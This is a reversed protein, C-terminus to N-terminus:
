NVILLKTKISKEEKSIVISIWGSLILDIPGISEPHIEIPMLLSSFDILVFGGIM